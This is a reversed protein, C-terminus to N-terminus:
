RNRLTRLQARFAPLDSVITAGIEDTVGHHAAAAAGEVFVAVKRPLLTRLRRLERPLGRDRPSEGLGLTVARAGIRIATEAIDEASLGPGVYTVRWGAAAAAASVILAGLEHPQGSPTTVVLDPAALPWTADETARELARRLVALALHRHTARLTGEHVRTTIQHWLPTVVVDLFAEASLAVSARRIVAALTCADFQEVARLAAHLDRAGAEEPAAVRLSAPEAVATRISDDASLLATLKANSLTAVQGITRGNLTCQALLRLREIDAGSYLRRGTDSRTPTVVSHRKEWARIVDTSLGTRRVVVQIPHIPSALGVPSRKPMLVCYPARRASDLFHGPYM